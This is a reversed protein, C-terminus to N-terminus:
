MDTIFQCMSKFTDKQIKNEEELRKETSKYKKFFGKTRFYNLFM